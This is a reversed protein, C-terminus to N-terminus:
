VGYKSIINGKWLSSGEKLVAGMSSAWLCMRAMWLCVTTAATFISHCDPRERAKTVKIQASTDVLVNSKGLLILSVLSVTRETCVSCVYSWVTCVSRVYTWETAVAFVSHRHLIWSKSNDHKM